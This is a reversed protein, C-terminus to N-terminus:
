KAPKCKKYEKLMEKLIEIDEMTPKDPCELKANDHMYNHISRYDDYKQKRNPNIGTIILIIYEIVRWFYINDLIYNNYESIVCYKTDINEHHLKHHNHSCLLGTKQILTIIYPNECERMHSHKHLANAFTAFLFFSITLAPYKFLIKKNIFYLIAIFIVSLMISFKSNEFYSYATIARPFYHHLENDKSIDSLIPIDICYDLYTDEFWHFM